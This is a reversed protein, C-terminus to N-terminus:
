IRQRDEETTQRGRNQPHLLCSLHTNGEELAAESGDVSPLVLSMVTLMGVTVGKGGPPPPPPADPFCQLWSFGFRFYLTFLFLFGYIAHETTLTTLSFTLSSAKGWADAAKTAGLGKLLSDWM